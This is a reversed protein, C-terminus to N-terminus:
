AQRLVGPPLPSFALSHAFSEGLVYCNLNRNIKQSIVLRRDAPVNSYELIVDSTHDSTIKALALNNESMLVQHVGGHRFGHLTYLEPDCGM